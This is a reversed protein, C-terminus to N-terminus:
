DPGWRETTSRHFRQIRQQQAQERKTKSERHGHKDHCKALNVTGLFLAGLEVAHAAAEVPQKLETGSRLRM